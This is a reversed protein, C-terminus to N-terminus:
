FNRAEDRKHPLWLDIRTGKAVVAAIDIEARLIAARARMATLGTGNKSLKDTAFGRGNDSIVLLVGEADHRREPRCEFRIDSAGAHGIVNSVAENVLRLLHLAHVPDLWAIPPCDRVDWVVALGCRQLDDDFRHRLGGLLALLDGNLPDLSDVTLKLESLARRLVETTEAPHRERQAIALATVLSSGIGDHVERMLRERETDIASSVELKRRETEAAALDTQTAVLAAHAQNISRTIAERFAMMLAAFIALIVLLTGGLYWGEILHLALLPPLEVVPALTALLTRPQKGPATITATSAIAIYVVAFTVALFRRDDGAAPNELWDLTVSALGTSWLMAVIFGQWSDDRDIGHSLRRRHLALGVIWCTLLLLFTLDAADASTAGLRGAAWNHFSFWDVLLLVIAIVVFALRPSLVVPLAAAARAFPHVKM